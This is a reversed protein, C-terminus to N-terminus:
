YHGDTHVRQIHRVFPDDLGRRWDGFQRRLGRRICLESLPRVVPRAVSMVM